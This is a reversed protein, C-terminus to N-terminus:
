SNSSPLSEWMRMAAVGMDESSAVLSPVNNCTTTYSSLRASLGLSIPLPDPAITARFTRCKARREGDCPCEYCCM